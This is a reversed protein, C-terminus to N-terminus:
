ESMFEIQHELFFLGNYENGSKSLESERLHRDRTGLECVFVVSEKEKIVVCGEMGEISVQVGRCSRM